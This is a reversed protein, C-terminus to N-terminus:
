GMYYGTLCLDIKYGSDEPKKSTPLVRPVLHSVIQIRRASKLNYTLCKLGGRGGGGKVSTCVYMRERPVFKDNEYLGNHM